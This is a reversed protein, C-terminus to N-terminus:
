IVFLKEQEAIKEKCQEIWKLNKRTRAIGALRLSWETIHESCRVVNFESDRRILWWKNIPNNSLIARGCKHCVLFDIEVPTDQM